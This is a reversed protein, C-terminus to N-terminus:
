NTNQGPDNPSVLEGGCQTAYRKSREKFACGHNFAENKLASCLANVNHFTHKGTYCGQVDYEYTYSQTQEGLYPNCGVAMLATALAFARKM